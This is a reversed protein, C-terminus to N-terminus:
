EKVLDELEKLMFRLRAHLDSLSQLNKKLSSIAPAESDLLVAPKKVYVPPALSAVPESSERAIRKALLEAPRFSEIKFAPDKLDGSKLVKGTALPAALSAPTSPAAAPAGKKYLQYINTYVFTTKQSKDRTASM